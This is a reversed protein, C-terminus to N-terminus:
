FPYLNVVVMDFSKISHKAMEASEKSNTMDALIGAFVNPHLSKVKGSLMEPFDTLESVDTAAIGNQKLLDFTGGTSVIEFKHNEVLEKAFDVINEKDYVSIFARKKM